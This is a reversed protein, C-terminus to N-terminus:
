IIIHNYKSMSKLLTKKIIRLLMSVIILFIYKYYIRYVNESFDYHFKSANYTVNLIADIRYFLNRNVFELLNHSEINFDLSFNQQFIIPTICFGNLEISAVLYQDYHIVGIYDQYTKLIAEMAKRSYCLAVTTGANYQWIDKSVKIGHTQISTLGTEYTEFLFPYGFYFIDWEDSYQMFEVAKALKEESYSPSLMVDDEFVLINDLGREYASKVIQIHSDFCGYIGGYPHKQVTFYRVPINFKNFISECHQKRKKSIDLNICVIDDFFDYINTM